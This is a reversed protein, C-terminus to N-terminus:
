LGVQDLLSYTRRVFEQAYAIVNGKKYNIDLFAESNYRSNNGCNHHTSSRGCPM